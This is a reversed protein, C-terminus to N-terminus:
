GPQPFALAEPPREALGADVRPQRRLHNQDSFFRAAQLLHEISNGLDVVALHLNGDLAKEGHELGRQYEPKGHENASDHERYKQADHSHAFKDPLAADLFEAQMPRPSTIMCRKVAVRGIDRHRSPVDARARPIVKISIRTTRVSMPMTMPM